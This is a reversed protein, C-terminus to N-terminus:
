RGTEMAGVKAGFQDGSDTQGGDARRQPGPLDHSESPVHEDIPPEHQLQASARRRGQKQGSRVRYDVVMGGRKQMATRGGVGAHDMQEGIVVPPNLAAIIEHNM